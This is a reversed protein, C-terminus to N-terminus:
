ANPVTAKPPRGRRAKPKEDEDSTSEASAEAGGALLALQAADAEAQDPAATAQAPAESKATGAPPPEALAESVIENGAEDIDVHVDVETDVHEGTATLAAKEGAAVAADAKVKAEAAAKALSEKMWDPLDERDENWRALNRSKRVLGIAVHVRWEDIKLQKALIKHVGIPPTPLFPLYLAEVAAMQDPSVALKRKPFLLKPLKLVKERVINIAFFVKSPELQIAEGITEHIDPNPLPLAARYRKEVEALQEKTVL